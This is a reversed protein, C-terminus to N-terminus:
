DFKYLNLGLKPDHYRDVRGDIVTVVMECTACIVARTLHGGVVRGTEDAASMHLHSYYEGDMTNVTGSLSVIEHMGRFQNPRYQQADMDYLGVTFDDTAGLAIVSALKVNEALCVTKLQETIEEGRDIRLVLTNGFRRYDM